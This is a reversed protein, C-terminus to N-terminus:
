LLNCRTPAPPQSPGIVRRFQSGFQLLRQAKGAGPLSGLLRGIPLGEVAHPFAPIAQGAQVHKLLPQLAIRGASGADIGHHAHGVVVGDDGTPIGLKGVPKNTGVLHLWRECSDNRHWGIRAIRRAVGAAGRSYGLDKCILERGIRIRDAGSGGFRQFRADPGANVEAMFQHSAFLNPHSHGLSHDFPRLLRQQQTPTRLAHHTFQYICWASRVVFNPAFKRWHTNVIHAGFQMSLVRGGAPVCRWARASFAIAEEMIQDLPLTHGSTWESRFMAEDLQARVATMTREYEIRDVPWLRAGSRTLLADIAALLQTALTPNGLVVAVSALGNLAMIVGWTNNTQRSLRLGNVIQNAAQDSAGKVLAIRGIRIIRYTASRAKGAEQALHLGETYAAGAREYNHMLYAAEGILLLPGTVELESGISHFMTVSQSALRDATVYDGRSLAVMSLANLTGAQKGIDGIQQYLRLSEKLMTQAIALDDMERALFGIM